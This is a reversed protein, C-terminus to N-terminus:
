VGLVSKLIMTIRKELVGKTQEKVDVGAQKLVFVVESRVRKALADYDVAQTRCVPGVLGAQKAKADNWLDILEMAVKQDISAREIIQELVALSPIRQGTEIKRYGGPSLGVQAAFGDQDSWRSQERLAALRKHLPHNSHVTPRM